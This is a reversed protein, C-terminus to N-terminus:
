IINYIYYLIIILNSIVFCRFFRFVLHPSLPSPSKPSKSIKKLHRTKINGDKWAKIIGNSVGIFFTPPISACLLSLSNCFPLINRVKAIDLYFLCLRRECVAGPLKSSLAVIRMQCRWHRVDAGVSQIVVFRLVILHRYEVFHLLNSCGVSGCGTFIVCESLVRAGPPGSVDGLEYLSVTWEFLAIHESDDGFQHAGHFQQQLVWLAYLEVSETREFDRNRVFGYLVGFKKIIATPANWTASLPCIRCTLPTKM